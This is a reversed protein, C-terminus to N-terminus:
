FQDKGHGLRSEVHDALAAVEHLASLFDNVPLAQPDAALGCVVDLAPPTVSLDLAFGARGPGANRRLADRVVAPDTLLASRSQLWLVPLPDSPGQRTQVKVSQHRGDPLTVTVLMDAAQAQVAYGPLSGCVTALETIMTSM